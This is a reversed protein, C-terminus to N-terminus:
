LSVFAHEVRHVGVLIAKDSELFHLVKSPPVGVPAADKIKRV